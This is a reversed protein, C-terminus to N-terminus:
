GVAWFYMHGVMTVRFGMTSYSELNLNSMKIFDSKSKMLIDVRLMPDELVMPNLTGMTYWMYKQATPQPWIVM